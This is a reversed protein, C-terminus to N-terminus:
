GASGVMELRRRFEVVNALKIHEYGRVLDPLEALEVARDLSQATVSALAGRIAKQYEEPLRRETRRVKSKGFPDLWTGRLRKAGALLRIMPRWRTSLSIKSSRGVSRLAPPHLRWEVKDGPAAVERVPANGDDDLLLRAVEYEDKYALLKHLGVAVALTLRRSSPAVARERDEVERVFDLYRRALKQNQFGILDATLRSLTHEVETDGMALETITADFAAPLPVPSAVPPIRSAVENEVVTRDAVQWRGWRLAALNRDVAVGNLEIAHEVLEHDVPLLGSQLAMGVVFMNAQVTDGFFAMTVADADAWHRADPRTVADVRAVLEERSPMALAQEAIKAGPPTVALSGVVGTREGTAAARGTWSAAVLLDFALLLDAQGLGVRSSDAAQGHSIRLDSVVPGAKQSLGIQDLGSVEAGGLMAATGIVQAVTVVGTGGIGTIHVSVEGPHSAPPDPLGEPVAPFRDAAARRRRRWWRDPRRTVTVFAPCDGELCSEDLNCTTQDITTKRGFPTDVPHVSLCNSVRACDGCGECVRHNIAIRTPPTPLTGRKRDRRVEAACRQDHILVTVGDTAALERQAELMDHRPWTEVGVPLRERRTRDPDDTTVIVRRVGQALLQSAMDRLELRGTPDQGGTMAVAGNWLIKFTIHSGAAIAAPIALQGSHFFTGDGLNQFLHDTEVFPAMGIWQSGENGMCTIGVIDGARGETGITIMTHCGIGAGVIAGDPM